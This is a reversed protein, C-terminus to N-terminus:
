KASTVFVCSILPHNMTMFLAALKSNLNGGWTLRIEQSCYSEHPSTNFPFNACLHRPHPFDRLAVPEKESVLVVEDSVKLTLIRAFDIPDIEYCDDDSDDGEEKAEEIKVSNKKSDKEEEVTTMSRPPSPLHSTM